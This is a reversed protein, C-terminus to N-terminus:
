RPSTVTRELETFDETGLSSVAIPRRSISLVTDRRADLQKEREKASLYRKPVQGATLGQVNDQAAGGKERHLGNFNSSDIHDSGDESDCMNVHTDSAIRVTRGRRNPTGASSRPPGAFAPAHVPFQTADKSLLLATGRTGLGISTARQMMDFSDSRSQYATRTSGLHPNRERNIPSAAFSRCTQVPDAPEYGLRLSRPSPARHKPDDLRDVHLRSGSFPGLQKFPMLVSQKGGTTGKPPRTTDLPEWDRESVQDNFFFNDDSFDDGAPLSIGGEGGQARESGRYKVTSALEALKSTKTRWPTAVKAVLQDARKERARVAAPDKNERRAFYASVPEEGEGQGKQAVATNHQSHIPLGSEGRPSESPPASNAHDDAKFLGAGLGKDIWPEVHDRIGQLIDGDDWLKRQINLLYSHQTFICDGPALGDNFCLCVTPMNYHITRLIQKECTWVKVVNDTSATAYVSLADSFDLATVPAKHLDGSRFVVEMQGTDGKKQSNKEALLRVEREQLSGGDDDSSSDNGDATEYHDRRVLGSRTRMIKGGGKAKFGGTSEKVVFIRADGDKCGVGFFPLKQSIAFASKFGSVLPLRVVECVLTLQPLLWVRVSYHKGDPSRGTTFLEKRVFRYQIDEVCDLDKGGQRGQMVHCPKCRNMTDLFVIQGTNTGVAVLEEVNEPVADGRLDMAFRHTELTSPKLAPLPLEDVLTMCTAKEHDGVSANWQPIEFVLESWDGPESGSRLCYVKLAGSEFLCMLLQQSVSVTYAVIGDVVVEPDMCSITRGRETFLRLDRGALAVIYTQSMHPAHSLHSHHQGKGHTGSLHATATVHRSPRFSSKKEEEEEKHARAMVASVAADAEARLQAKEKEGDKDPAVVHEGVEEEIVFKDINEANLNFEFSSVNSSFAAATAVAMRTRRGVDLDEQMQVAQEQEKHKFFDAKITRARTEDELEKEKAINELRAIQMDEFKNLTIVDASAIGFFGAVSSFKWLRIDNNEDEFLIGTKSQPKLPIRMMNRIGVGHMNITYIINFMELNLIHILGDMGASVGMGSVPHLAIGAIAATHINFTHLLSLRDESDEEGGEENDSSGEGHEQQQEQLQPQRQQRRVGEIGAKKFHLATWCKIVGGVCGTMYFQSRKYWCICTVTSEHIDKLAFKGKLGNLDIIYASRGEFAYVHDAAADLSMRSIWTDALGYSTFKYLREMLFEMNALSTRYVRWMSLGTAGAMLIVQRGEHYEMALMAREEHSISNILTLDRTYLKFSMDLAAAVFLNLPKVFVVATIFGPTTKPFRVQRKVVPKTSNTHWREWLVLGGIDWSLYSDKRDNSMIDNEEQTEVVKFGRVDSMHHSFRFVEEFGDSLDQGQM